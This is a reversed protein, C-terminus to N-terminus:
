PQFDVHIKGNSTVASFEKQQDPYRLNPINCSGNSTKGQTAYERMDGRVTGTISANSTQLSIHGSSLDHVTVGGDNTSIAIREGQLHEVTIPANSSVLSIGNAATCDHADIRGDNTAITICEGQLHEVAVPANSSVLSISNAAACNQAEVRGNSTTITIHKGRLGEVAVPANSSVLSIGGSVACDRADVRGNGTQAKLTECSIQSLNIGANGTECSIQQYHLGDGQIKGNSTVAELKGGTLAHLGTLRIHANCTKCYFDESGTNEAEVGGNSSVLSIRPLNQISACHIKANSTQILLTGNFSDPVQVTIVSEGRRRIGFFMHALRKKLKHRFFWVGDREESEIIDLNPDPTFAIRFDSEQRPEVEIRLSEAALNLTHFKGEPQKLPMLSSTAPQVQDPEQAYEEQFQAAAKVPDGFRAVCEEETLGQELGDCLMEEYYDRLQQREEESLTELAELFAKLYEEKTM